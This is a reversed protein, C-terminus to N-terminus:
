SAVKVVKGTRDSQYAAEIVKQVDLARDVDCLSPKEKVLAEVCHAFQAQLVNVKSDDVALQEVLKNAQYLNMATPTIDLTGEQGHLVVRFENPVTAFSITVAGLSGDKYNLVLAAKDDIDYTGDKAARLKGTSAFVSMPKGHYAM